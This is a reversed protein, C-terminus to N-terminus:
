SSNLTQPPWPNWTGSPPPPPLSPPPSPQKTNTGSDNDTHSIKRKGRAIERRRSATAEDMVPTRQDFDATPLTDRTDVSIPSERTNSFPVGRRVEPRPEWPIHARFQRKLSRIFRLNHDTAETGSGPRLHTLGDQGARGRLYTDFTSRQASNTYPRAVYSLWHGVAWLVWVGCNVTDSQPTLQICRIPVDPTALYIRDRMDSLFSAHLGLSDFLCWEGLNYFLARFHIGDCFVVM